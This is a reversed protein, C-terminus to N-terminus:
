LIVICAVYRDEMSPLSAVVANYQDMLELQLQQLTKHQALLSDEQQSAAVERQLVLHERCAVSFDWKFM